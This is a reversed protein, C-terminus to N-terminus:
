AKYGIVQTIAIQSESSQYSSNPDKIWWTANSYYDGNNKVDIKNGSIHYVNVKMHVDTVGVYPAFATFDKNNPEWVDVSNRFGDGNKYIIKLMKYNAASDALTIAGYDPQSDNSHLVVGNGYFVGLNARAAAATNAGTGGQAVTLPIEFEQKSKDDNFGYAM